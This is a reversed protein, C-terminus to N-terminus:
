RKKIRCDSFNRMQQRNNIFEVDSETFIVDKGHMIGDCIRDIIPSNGPLAETLINLDLDGWHGASQKMFYFPVQRQIFYLYAYRQALEIQHKNLPKVNSMNM